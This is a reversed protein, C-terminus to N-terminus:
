WQVEHYRFLRVGKGIAECVARLLLGIVPAWRTRQM